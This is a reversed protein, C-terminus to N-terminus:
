TCIIIISKSCLTNAGIFIQIFCYKSLAATTSIFDFINVTGKISSPIAFALIEAPLYLARNRKLARPEPVYRLVDAFRQNAINLPIAAPICPQHYLFSAKRRAILQQSHCFFVACRRCFYSPSFARSRPARLM